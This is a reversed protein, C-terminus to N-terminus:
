ATQITAQVRRVRECSLKFRFKLVCFIELRASVVNNGSQRAPHQLAAVALRSSELYHLSPSEPNLFYRPLLGM